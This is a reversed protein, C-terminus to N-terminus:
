PARSAMSSSRSSGPRCTGRLEARRKEDMANWIESGFIPIMLDPVQMPNEPDLSQSWDIRDDANWQLRKGKGYLQALAPRSDEYEWRFFTLFGSSVLWDLDDLAVPYRHNTSM